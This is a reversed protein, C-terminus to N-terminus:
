SIDKGTFIEADILKNLDRVKEDSTLTPNNLISIVDVARLYPEFKDNIVNVEMDIGEETDTKPRFYRIRSGIEPTDHSYRDFPIGLEILKVELEKFEGDRAEECSLLVIHKGTIEETVDHELKCLSNYQLYEDLLEQLKKNPKWKLNSLYLECKAYEAM